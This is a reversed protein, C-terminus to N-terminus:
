EEIPPVPPPTIDGVGLYPTAPESHCVCPPYEPWPLPPPVCYRCEIDCSQYAHYAPACAPLAGALLLALGGAFRRIWM